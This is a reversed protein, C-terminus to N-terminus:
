KIIFNPGKLLKICLIIQTLQGFIQTITWFDQTLQSLIQTLLGFFSPHTIWSNPHTSRKKHTLQNKPSNDQERRVCCLVRVLAVVVDALNERYHLMM